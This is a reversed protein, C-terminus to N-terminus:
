DHKLTLVNEIIYVIINSFIDCIETVKGFHQNAFSYYKYEVNVCEEKKEFKM